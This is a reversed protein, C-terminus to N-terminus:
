KISIESEIAINEECTFEARLFLRNQTWKEDYRV